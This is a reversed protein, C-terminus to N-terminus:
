KEVEILNINFHYPFFTTYVRDFSKTDLYIFTSFQPTKFHAKHNLKILEFTTTGQKM